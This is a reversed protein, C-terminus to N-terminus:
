KIDPTGLGTHQDELDKLEEEFVAIDDQFYLFLRANLVGFKRFVPFDNDSALFAAFGRFGVDKWPKVILEESSAM